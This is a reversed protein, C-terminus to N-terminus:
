DLQIGLIKFAEPSDIDEIFDITKTSKPLPEFILKFEKREKYYTKDPAWAIGKADILRYNHENSFLFTSEKQINVWNSEDIIGEIEFSIATHQNTLVVQKIELKSHSCLLFSPNNIVVEEAKNEQASNYNTSAGNPHSSAPKSWVSSEESCVILFVFDRICKVKGPLTQGSITNNTPIISSSLASEVLNILYTTKIAYGVNETGLHKSSVIGILNGKGDFLPGGSNGPQIPASIQYQAVDGQFGTKSSIVGTTLKLEDGMTLTLPYGLVFVDEGVDALTTKVKYPITGFGTFRSDTIKLVALDNIKDTAIVTAEYEIGSDGKIGLVVISKANEVVHYNTVICGENLAFGTGSWETPKSEEAKKQQEREQEIRIAEELANRYMSSTPYKKIACMRYSVRFGAQYDRGLDAKLQEVPMDLQIEFQLSNILYFRTKVLGVASFEKCYYYVNTEGIRELYNISGDEWAMKFRESGVKVITVTSSEVKNEPFTVFANAGQAYVEMDYEGEIPDLDLINNRFYDRNQSYLSFSVAM